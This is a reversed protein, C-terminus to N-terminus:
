VGLSGARGATVEALARLATHDLSGGGMARLTAIQGAVLAGVPLTVGSQRAAATLIGLDKHHLDVRFGPKYDGALMSAGRRELVTSGALGGGLVALAPGPEVGSAELFVIAEALAELHAAVMLQNAAKVTQGAGAPGVLAATSGVADLIGRVAEFDAAEGGVMISLKGAIAGAEGGSVPADLVRLGLGLGRKALERAVVPSITSMDMYVTGPAAHAFVGDPGLAVEEVQPSDPLMTIVVDVGVVAQAITPATRGGAQEFDQDAAGGRRYATVTHGAKLLNKAMPRGMVGLGIFAVSSSM